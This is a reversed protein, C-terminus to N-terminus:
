HKLITVINECSTFTGCVALASTNLRISQRVDHWHCSMHSLNQNEQIYWQIMCTLQLIWSRLHNVSHCTTWFTTALVQCSALLAHHQQKVLGLQSFQCLMLSLYELVLSNKSEPSQVHINGINALLAHQQQKALGLQSLQCLSIDHFRQVWSKPSKVVSTFKCDESLIYYHLKCLLQM